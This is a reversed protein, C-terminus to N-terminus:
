SLVSVEVGEQRQRFRHCLLHLQILEQERNDLLGRLDHFRVTTAEEEVVALRVLQPALDGLPQLDFLDAERNPDPDGAVHRLRSLAGVNRVRIVIGTEVLSEVLLRPVPSTRDQGQGDHIGLAFQDADHLAQVLGASRYEIFVILLEEVCEAGMHGDREFSCAQYLRVHLLLPHLLCELDSLVDLHAQEGHLRRRDLAEVDVPVTDSAILGTAVVEVVNLKRVPPEAQDDAIYGAM